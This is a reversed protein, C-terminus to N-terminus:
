IGARELERAVAFGRRHIARAAPGEERLAPNTHNLHIFRVKARERADLPALRDMTEVIFPHPIKSMDRNPLEGDAYFTGDLYAVDVTALVDELRREWRDWKDIDPIYLVSRQPGRIVFGVVETYEDRHPVLLPTVDIRDNLAVATDAALPRLEINGFRVLQDWPGSSSLFSRMRPMAYVPVAHAGISEHGVFMLGTYHGIHAHTLLIGDLGPPAASAQPPAVGDLARLQRGFDPTADIIWRQGREPDVIALSSVHRRRNEDEWAGACCSRGCAAQPVGADQAVGLVLVFPADPAPGAPPWAPGPTACGGGPLFAAALLLVLSRLWRSIERATKSRPPLSSRSIERRTKSRPPLSLLLFIVLM